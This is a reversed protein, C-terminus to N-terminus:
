SASPDLQHAVNEGMTRATRISGLIENRQANWNETIDKSDLKGAAGVVSTGAKGILPLFQDNEEFKDSKLATAAVEMMDGSVWLDKTFTRARSVDSFNDLIGKEVQKLMDVSSRLAASAAPNRWPEPTHGVSPPQSAPIAATQAPAPGSGVKM